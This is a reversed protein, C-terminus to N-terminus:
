DFRHNRWNDGGDTTTWIGGPSGVWRGVKATEFGLFMGDTLRDEVSQTEAAAQKWRQGGDHSVYCAYRFAGSGSIAGNAVILDSLGTLAIASPADM